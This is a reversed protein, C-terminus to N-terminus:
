MGPLAFFSFPSSPNKSSSCGGPRRSRDGGVPDQQAQQQGLAAMIRNVDEIVLEMKKVLQAADLVVSVQVPVGRNAGSLTIKMGPVIEEFLNGSAILRKGDVIVVAERGAM